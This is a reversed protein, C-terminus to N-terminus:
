VVPKDPGPAQQAMQERLVREAIAPMNADLWQRLMPRLMEAVAAELTRGADVSGTVAAPSTAVVAPQAPAATKASGADNPRTQVAGASATQGAGDSAEKPQPKAAGRVAPSLIPAPPQEAPADTAAVRSLLGDDKTKAAGNAKTGASMADRLSRLGLPVPREATEPLGLQREVKQRAEILGADHQPASAGPGPLEGPQGPVVMGLDGAAAHGNSKAATAPSQADHKAAGNADSKQPAAPAPAPSRGLPNSLSWRRDRGNTGNSEAPRSAPAAGNALDLVADVPLADSSSARQPTVSFDGPSPTPTANAEARGDTGEAPGPRTGIPEEAIIKRISALIEEMSPEVAKSPNSM